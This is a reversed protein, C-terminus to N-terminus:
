NLTYILLNNWLNLKLKNQLNFPFTKKGPYVLSNWCIKRDKVITQLFSMRKEFPRSDNPIDFVKFIVPPEVDGAWIKEIQEETYSKGPKLTSLRSTKQFLGRGIWIKEM